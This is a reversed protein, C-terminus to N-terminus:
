GLMTVECLMVVQGEIARTNTSCTQNVQVELSPFHAMLSIYSLKIFSLSIIINLHCPFSSCTFSFFRSQDENVYHFRVSQMLNNVNNMDNLTQAYFYFM